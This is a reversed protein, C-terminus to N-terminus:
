RVFDVSEEAESPDNNISLGDSDGPSGDGVRWITAGPQSVGGYLYGFTITPLSQACEHTGDHHIPATPVARVGCVQVDDFRVSGSAIQIVLQAEAFMMAVAVQRIRGGRARFTYARGRAVM